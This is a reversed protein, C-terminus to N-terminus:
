EEYTPDFRAKRMLEERTIAPLGNPGAIGGLYKDLVGSLKDTGVALSSAARNRVFKNGAGFAAGMLATKFPGAGSLGAKLVGLGAAAKDSPSNLNRAMARGGAGGAMREAESLLHYSRNADKFAQAGEPAASQAADYVSERAAQAAQYDGEVGRAPDGRLWNLKNDYGRRVNVADGFPLDRPLSSDIVDAEDRLRNVINRSGPLFRGQRLGELRVKTSIDSRPVSVGATDLADVAGEVKQGAKETLPGLREGVNQPSDLFRVAKSDLLERGMPELEGRELLRRYDGATGRVAGAAMRESFPRIRNAVGTLGKAVGYGAFGASGGLWAGFGTDKAADGFEGKTLDANSSGLGNAAGLLTGYKVAGGLGKGGGGPMLLAAALGSGIATKPNEEFSEHNRHRETDRELRYLDGIPISSGGISNPAAKRILARLAGLMEDQHGITLTQLGSRIATNAKSHEPIDPKEGPLIAGSDIMRELGSRPAPQMVSVGGSPSDDTWEDDVWDQDDAM